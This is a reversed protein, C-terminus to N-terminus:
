VVKTCKKIFANTWSFYFQYGYANLPKPNDNKNSFNYMWSSPDTLKGDITQVSLWLVVPTIGGSYNEMCFAM